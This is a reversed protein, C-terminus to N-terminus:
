DGAATEFTGDHRKCHSRAQDAPWNSKSYRYAQDVFDNNSKLRGGIVDYDKKATASHRSYRRFTGDKFLGPEKLRCAHENAYPMIKEKYMFLAPRTVHALRRM